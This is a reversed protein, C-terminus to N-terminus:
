GGLPQRDPQKGPQRRDDDDRKGAQAQVSELKGFQELRTIRGLLGIALQKGLGLRPGLGLVLQALKLLHFQDTLQGAADRM